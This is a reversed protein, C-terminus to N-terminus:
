HQPRPVFSCLRIFQLLVCSVPPPFAKGVAPLPEGLVWVAESSMWSVGLSSM